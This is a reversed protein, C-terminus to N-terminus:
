GLMVHFVQDFGKDYSSENIADFLQEALTFFPDAGFAKPPSALTPALPATMKLM